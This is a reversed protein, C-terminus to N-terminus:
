NSNECFQMLPQRLKKTLFSFALITILIYISSLIFHLLPYNQLNLAYVILNLLLLLPFIWMLIWGEIFHFCHAEKGYLGALGALVFGSSVIIGESQLISGSTFFFASIISLIIGIIICSLIFIKVERRWVLLFLASLLTGAYFIMIGISYYFPSKLIYYITFILIGIFGIVYGTRYTIDYSKPYYIDPSDM